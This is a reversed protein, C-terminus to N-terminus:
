VEGKVPCPVDGGYDVPHTRTARDFTVMGGDSGNLSVQDRQRVQGHWPADIRYVFSLRGVLCEPCNRVADRAAVTDPVGLMVPVPRPIHSLLTDIYDWDGVLSECLWVRKWYQAWAWERQEETLRTRVCLVRDGRCSGEVEDGIWCAARHADATM